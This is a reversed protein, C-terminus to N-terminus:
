MSGSRFFNQKILDDLVMRKGNYFAVIWADKIGASIVMQRFSEADSLTNFEKMTFRTIGDGYPVVEASALDKVNDYKFNAPRRYAGIQM